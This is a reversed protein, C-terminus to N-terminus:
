GTEVVQLLVSSELPCHSTLSWPPPPAPLAAAGGRGWWKKAGGDWDFAIIKNRNEIKLRFFNNEIEARGSKVKNQPGQLNYQTDPKLNDDTLLLYELKEKTANETGFLNHMQLLDLVM